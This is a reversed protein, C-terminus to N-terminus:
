LWLSAAGLWGAENGLEFQVMRVQRAFFTISRKRVEQLMPELLLDGAKLLGGGLLLVSPNFINILSAAGIGIWRGADRMIELSVPDGALAHETVAKATIEGGEGLVASLSSKKGEALAERARRAINSGSALAMLCGRNGCQCLPGDPLLTIHGMEGAAGNAGRMLQGGVIAGGGIGTGIYLCVVNDVGKCAGFRHEGLLAANVDNEFRVPLHCLTETRERMPFGVMDRFSPLFTIIGSPEEWCGPIGAGIGRLELDRSSAERLAGQLLNSIQSFVEEALRQSRSDVEQRWLTEGRRNAIGATVTTGGLDLGIAAEEM